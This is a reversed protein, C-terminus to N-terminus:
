RNIVYVNQIGRNSYQISEISSRLAASQNANAQSAAAVSQSVDAAIQAAAQDIREGLLRHSQEVQRCVTASSKAITERLSDTSAKMQARNLFEQGISAFEYDKDAETLLRSYEAFLEAFRAVLTEEMSLRPPAYEAVLADSDFAVAAALVELERRTGDDCSVALVSSRFVPCELAEEVSTLEGSIHTLGAGRWANVYTVSHALIDEIRRMCRTAEEVATWFGSLRHESFASKMSAVSNAFEDLSHATMDRIRRGILEGHQARVIPEALEETIFLRQAVASPEAIRGSQQGRFARGRRADRLQRRLAPIQPLVVALVSFQDVLGPWSRPLLGSVFATVALLAASMVVRDVPNKVVLRGILLAAVLWVGANVFADPVVVTMQNVLHAIALGLGVPLTLIVGILLSLVVGLRHSRRGVREEQDILAQATEARAREAAQYSRVAHQLEELGRHDIVVRAPHEIRVMHLYYPWNRFHALQLLCSRCPWRRVM